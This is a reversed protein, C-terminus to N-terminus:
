RVSHQSFYKFDKPEQNRLDFMEEVTVLRFGQEQLGKVIAEVGDVTTKHIDHMLIIDGSSARSLVTDVLLQTNKHQWDLTDVNWFVAFMGTEAVLEKKLNGYPPRLCTPYSGTANYVAEQTRNIEEMMGEVSLLNFNAHNYSHNGIQSGLDAIRRLVAGTSKSIRHGAVFFTAKAQCAELVDLVQSTNASSPGDDFTLAIVKEGPQVPAYEKWQNSIKDIIKGNFYYDPILLEREEGAKLVNTDDLTVRVGEEELAFSTFLAEGALFSELKQPDAAEKLGKGQCQARLFDGFYLKFEAFSEFLASYQLFDGKAPDWYTSRSAAKQWGEEGKVEFDATILVYGKIKKTEFDTRLQAGQSSLRDLEEWIGATWAEQASPSSFVPLACYATAGNIQRSSVLLSLGTEAYDNASACFVMSNLEEANPDDPHCVPFPEPVALSASQAPQMRVCSALFCVAALCLCVLVSWRKM